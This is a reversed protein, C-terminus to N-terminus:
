PPFAVFYEQKRPIEGRKVSCHACKEQLRAEPLQFNVERRVQAVAGSAEHQLFATVQRDVVVAALIRDTGEHNAALRPQETICRGGRIGTRDDIRQNFGGLCVAYLGVCPQAMRQPMQWCGLGSIFHLPQQRPIQM